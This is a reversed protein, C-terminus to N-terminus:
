DKIWFFAVVLCFQAFLDLVSFCRLLVQSMGVIVVDTPKPFFVICNLRGSKRHFVVDTGLM